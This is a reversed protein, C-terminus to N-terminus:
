SSPSGSLCSRGPSASLVPSPLSEGPVQDGGGGMPNPKPGHDLSLMGPSSPLLGSQLRQPGGVELLWTLPFWGGGRALCSPGQLIAGDEEVHVPAHARPGLASCPMTLTWVCPEPRHGLQCVYLRSQDGHLPGGPSWFVSGTSSLSLLHPQNPRWALAGGSFTRWARWGRWFAGNM